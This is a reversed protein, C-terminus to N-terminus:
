SAWIFKFKLYVSYNKAYTHGLYMRYKVKQGWLPLVGKLTVAEQGSGAM